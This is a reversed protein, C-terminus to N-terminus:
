AKGYKKMVADFEKQNKAAKIEASFGGSTTVVNPTNTNISPPTNNAFLYSDSLKLKEIAEKAGRVELSDGQAEVELSSLSVFNTLKGVVEPRVGAKLAEEKLASLRQANIFTQQIKVAKEKEVQAEQAKLQALETLKGQEKLRDEEIQKLKAELEQARKAEAKYRAIDKEYREQGPTLPPQSNPESTQSNANVQQDPQNSVSKGEVNDM